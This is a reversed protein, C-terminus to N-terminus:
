NKINSLRLIFPISFISLVTAAIYTDQMGILDSSVGILFTTLSTILFNITMFIGNIFSLRESKIELLEALLVPNTAFLVLGILILIPFAWAGELLLFGAMLVPISLSMILLTTKRGIRDSITGSFFTGAGGALQLVSLSIGAMWLSEGKLSLYTPLFATLASKLILTFLLIGSMNIFVGSHERFTQLIGSDIKNTKLEQSIKIKKFKFYLFISAALGFPFLRFTGELGWISIGGLIVLPGISRAIEGGLMFVSMGKGVRVGAIHKVMVPAPVHFMSTSIGMVFLLIAIVTYSPAAGLLSMCTATILPAIILLYRLSIKDAVLGVLPNMLSPLNQIVTLLGALSYSLKFKEILLPLIPALFASYVDHVFHASAILLINGTQFKNKENM